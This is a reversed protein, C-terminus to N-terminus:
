QRQTWTSGGDNSTWTGEGALLWGASPGNFSMAVDTTPAGQVCGIAEGGPTGVALGSCDGDSAVAVVPVDAVIAMALSSPTRGASTWTVGSNITSYVEGNGCLVSAEEFSIAELEITGRARCPSDVTAYPAQLSTADDDVLLHWAGTTDSPGVWTQGGDESLTFGPACEPGTAGVFWLGQESTRQIRLLLDTPTQLPSWSKGQDDTTELSAGGGPCGGPEGRLASRSSLAALPRERTPDTVPPAEVDPTPSPEPTPTADATPTATAETGVTITPPPPTPDRLALVVLAATGAALVALGIYAWPISRRQGAM